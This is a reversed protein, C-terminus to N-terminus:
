YKIKNIFHYFIRNVDESIGLGIVASAYILTIISSRLLIDLFNNEQEPIFLNIIIVLISILLVKFTNLSFPQIKFKIKLFIYKILNFLLLSLTSALAAGIMGFVPILFYNTVVTIIALFGIVIINFRYYKSMIIIEGNNGAVMDIVKGLGVIIVVSKGTEYIEQNPIFHYINDINAWIGIFLLAGIIFQNLSVKEYLVKVEKLDIKQFARSLLPLSVQTIARKPMEIVVSIYFAIAYIATNDLGLFSTIMVIDIKGVILIGGSGIITFLCYKLFEQLFAKPVLKLNFSFRLEKNLILYIVILITSIIYIILLSYLLYNFDYFNLFYLILSISTLLRVVVEKIFNPYAIKILAKCYSEFLSNLVLIFTLILILYFYEILASSREKFISFFTDEFVQFILYFLLYGAISLLFIFSLFIDKHKEFKPLFRITGQSIGIQAFPMFLIAIDLIARYLGFQEPELFQPFLYLLNVYGIVVGLYSFFTTIISQRIVIGM